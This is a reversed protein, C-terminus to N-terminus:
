LDKKFYYKFIAYGPLRIYTNRKARKEPSILTTKDLGEYINNASMDIYEEYSEDAIAEDAKRDEDEELGSQGGVVRSSVIQCIYDKM